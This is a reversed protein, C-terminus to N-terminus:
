VNAFKCGFLKKARQRALEEVQDHFECGGYYRKGPYGEAYKNTMWTGMAHMVAPSVHNESAILELTTSQRTAEDTLIRSVEPDHQELLELLGNSLDDLMVSAPVPKVTSTRTM